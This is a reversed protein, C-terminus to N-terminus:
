SAITRLADQYVNLPILYIFCSRSASASYAHSAHACEASKASHLWQISPACDRHRLGWRPSLSHRKRPRKVDPVFTIYHHQINKPRHRGTSLRYLCIFGAVQPIPFRIQPKDYLCLRLGCARMTNSVLLLLSDAGYKCVYLTGLCVRRLPLHLCWSMRQRTQVQTIIYVLAKDPARGDGLVDADLALSRGKHVVAAM